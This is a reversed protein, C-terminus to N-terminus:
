AELIRHASPLFDWYTWWRSKIASPFGRSHCLCRFVWGSVTFLVQLVSLIIQASQIKQYTENGTGGGEPFRPPPLILSPSTDRRPGSLAGSSSRRLASRLLTLDLCCRTKPSMLGSRVRDPMEPSVQFINVKEHTNQPTSYFWM